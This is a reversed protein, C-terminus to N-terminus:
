IIRSVPVSNIILPKGRGVSEGLQYIATPFPSGVAFTYTPSSVIVSSGGIILEYRESVEGIPVDVNDRWDGDRRSRREWTLTYTGSPPNVTKDLLLKPNVPAYPKASEGQYNITIEESVLSLDSGEPVGKYTLNQGLYSPLGNTQTFAIDKVLYFKENVNHLGIASETGRCGRILRSLRYTNENIAVANMFAILENGILCLNKYSLLQDFTCSSLTGKSSPEMIVDISTFEDIVFQSRAPIANTVTGSIIGFFVDTVVDFSNNGIKEYLNGFSWSDPVVLGTYTGFDQDADSVLPIDLAVPTPDSTDPLSWSDSFDTSQIPAVFSEIDSNWLIGEIELAYNAGISVSQVFIELSRNALMVTIKDGANVSGVNQAQIIINEYKEQKLWLYELLKTASNALPQPEWTISTKLDLTNDHLKSARFASKLIPDHNSLINKAEIQVKQPIETDPTLVRTYFSKDGEKGLQGTGVSLTGKVRDIPFFEIKSGKDRGLFLFTQQLEEIASRITTGSRNFRYGKLDLESLETTFDTGEDLEMYQCLNRVIRSIKLNNDEIIEVDVKPLRNGLNALPLDRFVIYAYRKFGPVNNSGEFSQITASPSQTPTGLFLELHQSLRLEATDESSQDLERNQGTVDVGNNYYLEGNLWIRNISQLGTGNAPEGILVAFNGYYSYTIERRIPGGKGSTRRVAREERIPASWFIPCADVRVIGFLLPIESGFSARQVETEIRQGEITEVQRPSLLGVLLNLGIGVGLQIAVNGMKTLGVLAKQGVLEGGRAM